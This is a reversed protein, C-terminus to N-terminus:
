TATPDLGLKKRYDNYTIKVQEYAKRLTEEDPWPFVSVSMGGDPSIYISVSRNGKAMADDVITHVEQWSTIFNSNGM